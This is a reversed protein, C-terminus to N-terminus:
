IQAKAQMIIEPNDTEFQKFRLYARMMLAHREKPKARSLAASEEQSLFQRKVSHYNAACAAAQEADLLTQSAAQNCAYHIALMAILQTM